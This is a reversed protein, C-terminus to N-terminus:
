AGCEKPEKDGYILPVQWSGSGCVYVCTLRFTFKEFNPTFRGCYMNKPNESNRVLSDVWTCDYVCVRVCACMRVSVRMCVFACACACVCVCVCVCVRVCVYLCVKNAVLSNRTRCGVCVSEKERARV